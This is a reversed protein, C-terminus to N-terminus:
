DCRKEEFYSAIVDYDNYPVNGEKLAMYGDRGKGLICVIDNEEAMDFAHYIAEKRDLIREYHTFNTESVMDDIISNVDECRPDDMTFIVHDSLSLAEQGMKGRKEKERGGASGLVTIIRGTKNTSVCTLIQHIANATHAYDLLITYDQGFSLREGRGLVPHLLSVKSIVDSLSYGLCCLCAISAVLNYVNYTGLFPSEVLYTTGQYVLSFTTKLATQNISSFQFMANEGMGYTVVKGKSHSLMYSYYPDDINLVCYGDEKTQEFLKAKMSVYNEITKHVNLHDETLNTFVSVTFPVRAVRGALIAESSVEMSLMKCGRDVLHRLCPYFEEPIPTTNNTKEFFDGFYCGNTGLYGVPLYSSLLQYIMTSTTTKGDTGTVGIMTLSSVPDDYFAECCQILAEKTSSVRISPVSSSVEKEVLVASAGKQIVEDIFQHGDFTKGSIAVFLDGPGVQKSNATIGHIMVDYPCDIIDCLKKM